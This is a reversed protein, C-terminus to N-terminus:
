HMFLQTYHQRQDQVPKETSDLCPSRLRRYKTLASVVIIKQLELNILKIKRIFM